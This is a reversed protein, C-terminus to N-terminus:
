LQDLFVVGPQPGFETPGRATREGAAGADSLVTILGLAPQPPLNTYTVLSRKGVIAYLPWIYFLYKSLKPIYIQKRPKCPWPQKKGKPTLEVDQRVHGM